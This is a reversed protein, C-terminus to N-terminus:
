NEEPDMGSIVNCWPICCSVRCAHGHNAPGRFAIIVREKAADVRDVVALELRPVVIQLLGVEGPRVAEILLSSEQRRGFCIVDILRMCQKSSRDVIAGAM